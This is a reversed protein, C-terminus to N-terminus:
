AAVGPDDFLDLQPPRLHSRRVAPLVRNQRWWLAYALCNAHRPGKHACGPLRMREDDGWRAGRSWAQSDASALLGGYEEIGDLKFGFGHLRTVGCRHLRRLIRGASATNQRRCVSGVLVLPAATLDIRALQWYVDVCRAYDDETWGQVAPHIDLDPALDRLEAFNLVTRRQHEAVSLHTGVFRQGGFRGGNIIAPECMWDQPAAWTLGGIEDRYRRILRVYQAPSPGADWTGHNQLWTFGGSDLVWPAPEGAGGGIRVPVTNRGEPKGGGLTNNSICLPVATHALHYHRHSGLWFLAPIM